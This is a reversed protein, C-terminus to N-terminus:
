NFSSQIPNFDDFLSLVIDDLNACDTLGYQESLFQGDFTGDLSSWPSMWDFNDIAAADPQVTTSSSTFAAQNALGHFPAPQGNAGSSGVHRKKVLWRSIPGTLEDLIDRSRKAGSWHEGVASLVSLSAKVNSAFDEPELTTAVSPVSFICYFMTITSLVINHFTIWNHVLLNKRYLENFLHISEVASSYCNRLSDQGPRPINPSPRLLLMRVSHYRLLLISRTYDNPGRAPPIGTAWRDLRELIDKQWAHIDTVGPYAYKPVDQNVSNAIYKIESNMRALKFLHIAYSMHTPAGPASAPHVEGEIDADSLDTPM